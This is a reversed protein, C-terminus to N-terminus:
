AFKNSPFLSITLHPVYLVDRLIIQHGYTSLFRISVLGELYIITGGALRITLMEVSLEFFASRRGSM